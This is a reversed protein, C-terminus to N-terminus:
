ARRLFVIAGKWPLGLGRWFEKRLTDLDEPSEVEGARERVICGRYELQYKVRM